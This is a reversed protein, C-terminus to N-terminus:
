DDCLEVRIAREPCSSAGDIAKQLLVASVQPKVVICYGDADPQYIEPAHTYCVGWGLCRNRNVVVRVLDGDDAEAPAFRTRVQQGTAPTFGYKTILHVARDIIEANTAKPFTTACDGLGARVGLGRDLAYEWMEQCREASSMAYPVVVVERDIWDPIRSLLFDLVAPDPDNHSVQTDSFFLKILLPQRLIGIRAALVVWRLDVANFVSISPVLGLEIFRDLEPPYPQGTRGPGFQNDEESWRADIVHQAPEFPAFLTEVGSPPQQALAWIHQLSEHYGPYVPADVDRAATAMIIRCLEDDDWAQGGDDRRAHFQASSAGHRICDALDRATDATHYPVNPNVAKEATGNVAAELYVTSDDRFGM